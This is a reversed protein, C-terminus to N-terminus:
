LELNNFTIDLIMEEVEVDISENLIEELAKQYKLYDASSIDIVIGDNNFSARVKISNLLFGTSVLNRKRIASKMKDEITRELRRM